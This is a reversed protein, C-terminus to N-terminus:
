PSETTSCLNRALCCVCALSVSPLPCQMLPRNGLQQFSVQPLFDPINGTFHVHSLLLFFFTHFEPSREWLFKGPEAIADLSKVSIQLQVFIVSLEQKTIYGTDCHAVQFCTTCLPQETTVPAPGPRRRRVDQETRRREMMFTICALSLGTLLQLSVHLLVSVNSM